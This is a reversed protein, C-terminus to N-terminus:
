VESRDGWSLFFLGLTPVNHPVRGELRHEVGLTLYEFRLAKLHSKSLYRSKKKNRLVRADEKQIPERFGKAKDLDQDKVAREKPVACGATSLAPYTAKISLRKFASGEAGEILSRHPHFQGLHLRTGGTCNVKM